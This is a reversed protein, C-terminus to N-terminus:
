KIHRIFDKSGAELLDEDFVDLMIRRVLNRDPLTMEQKALLYRLMHAIEPRTMRLQPLKCDDLHVPHYM